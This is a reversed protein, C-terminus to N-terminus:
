QAHPWKSPEHAHRCVNGLVMFAIACGLCSITPMWLWTAWGYLHWVTVILLLSLLAAAFLIWGTLQLKAWNASRAPYLLGVVAGPVAVIAIQCILFILELLFLM